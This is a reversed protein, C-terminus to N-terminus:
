LHPDSNGGPHHHDPIKDPGAFRLLVINDAFCRVERCAKLTNGLRVCDDNGLGAVRLSM